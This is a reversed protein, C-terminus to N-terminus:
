IGDEIQKRAKALLILINGTDSTNGSFWFEGEWNWGLILVDDLQAHEIAKQLVSNAPEPLITIGPFPVVSM